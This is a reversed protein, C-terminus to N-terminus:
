RHAARNMEVIDDLTPNAPLGAFREMMSERVAADKVPDAAALAGPLEDLTLETCYAPGMPQQRWSDALVGADYPDFGTDDVLTMAVKRAAESDGAVPIAIRGPTGAPVGRTRQTEALAANWAKTVPRGLLESTHVSEVRGDEVEKSRGGLHPYYNSTDIVVTEDPVSAFLGTLQGAVGFPISLIIVDRGQVSDDLAVARAGAQLVEATVAVPGRADAVQVDHGALSLKTALNGGIAGAGIVTIKM